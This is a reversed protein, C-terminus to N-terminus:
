ALKRRRRAMLATLALLSLTATSPEPIYLVGLQLTTMDGIYWSGYYDSTAYYDTMVWYDEDEDYSIAIKLMGDYYDDSDTIYIYYSLNGDADEEIAYGWLTIAHAGSKLTSYIGLTMGYDNSVATDVLDIFYDSDGESLVSVEIAVTTDESILDSWYGGGSDPYSMTSTQTLTGTAGAIWWELGNVEWGGVNKWYYVFTETITGYTSYTYGEYTTTGVDGGDPIDNTSIYYDSQKDQWFQLVNSAALAWCLDKDSGDFLKNYDYYTSSDNLDVGSLLYDTAYLSSALLSFLSLFFAKKFM